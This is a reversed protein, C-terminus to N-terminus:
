NDGDTEIRELKEKAEKYKEEIDLLKKKTEDDLDEGLVSEVKAESYKIFM